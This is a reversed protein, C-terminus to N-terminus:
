FPLDSDDGEQKPPISDEVLPNKVEPESETVNQSAPLLNSLEELIHKKLFKKVQSFYYKWDDTDYGEGKNEPLPLNNITVKKDKDWFYSEVRHQKNDAGEQTMSIGQLQKGKENEFDYANIVVPMSLNINKFRQAFSSFYKSNLGVQLQAKDEGEQLKILFQEGYDGDRFQLDTIFGTLNKFQLEYKVGTSENPQGKNLIYERKVADVTEKDVKQMLHGKIIYLYLVNSDGVPEALSM